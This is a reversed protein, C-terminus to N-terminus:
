VNSTREPLLGSLLRDLKAELADLRQTVTGNGAEQPGPIPHSSVVEGKAEEVGGGVGGRAVAEVAGSSVRGTSTLRSGGPSGPSLMLHVEKLDKHIQALM